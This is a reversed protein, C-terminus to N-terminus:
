YARMQLGLGVRFILVCVVATCVALILALPWKTNPNALAALFVASTVSVLLGLSEITLAFAGFAATLFLVGRVQGRELSFLRESRQATLLMIVALVLMTGGIIAPFYGPGMSRLTGLRYSMSEIVIFLGIGGTVFAAILDEARDKLYHM